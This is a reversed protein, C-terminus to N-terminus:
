PDKLKVDTPVPLKAADDALEGFRLRQDAHIIFGNEAACSAADVGWRKAAAAILMERATAGAKRMQEFSEWTSSSGGTMQMGFATHNYAADAPAPEVHVKSFDAGLEEALAMALGTHIGQGMEDHKALVTISDDPAIRLFANPAFTAPEAAFLLSRPLTFQLELGAGLLTS